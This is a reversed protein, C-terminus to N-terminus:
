RRAQLKKVVAPLSLQFIQLAIDRFEPSCRALGFGQQRALNQWHPALARATIGGKGEDQAVYYTQSLGSNIIRILCMECPELSSYLTYGKLTQNHHQEEYATLLVMEAHYDSRFYPAFMRNHDRMAINGAEDVLVAGVGANGEWAATAAEELAIMAYPDDPYAPNPGLAEIKAMLKALSEQLDTDM